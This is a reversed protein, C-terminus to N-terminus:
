GNRSVSPNVVQLCSCTPFHRIMGLPKSQCAAVIGGAPAHGQLQQSIHANEAFLPHVTSLIDRKGSSPSFFDPLRSKSSIFAKYCICVVEFIAIGFPNLPAVPFGGPCCSFVLTFSCFLDFLLGRVSSCQNASCAAVIGGASRAM